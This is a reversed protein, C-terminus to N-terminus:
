TGKGDNFYGGGIDYIRQIVAPATQRSYHFVEVKNGRRVAVSVAKSFEIEPDSPPLTASIKSLSLVQSHSLKRTETCQLAWDYVDRVTYVTYKRLDLEMVMGVKTRNDSFWVCRMRQTECKALYDRFHRTAQVQDTALLDVPDVTFYVVVPVVILLLIIYRLM